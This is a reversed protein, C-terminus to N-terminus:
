ILHSKKLAKMQMRSLFVDWSLTMYRAHMFVLGQSMDHMQGTFGIKHKDGLTGSPTMKGYPQYDYRRRVDGQSDLEMLTDGRYDTVVFTDQIEATSVSSFILAFVFFCNVLNCKIAHLLM